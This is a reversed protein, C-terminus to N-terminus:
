RKKNPSLFTTVEIEDIYHVLVPCEVLFPVLSTHLNTLTLGQVQGVVKHVITIFSYRTGYPLNTIM